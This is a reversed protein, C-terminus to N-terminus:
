PFYQFKRLTHRREKDMVSFRDRSKQKENHLISYKNKKVELFFRTKMLSAFIIIYFIFSEIIFMQTLVDEKM